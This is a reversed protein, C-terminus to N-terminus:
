MAVRAIGGAHVVLRGQADLLHLEGVLGHLAQRVQSRAAVEGNERHGQSGEDARQGSREGTRQARFGDDRRDPRQRRNASELNTRELLQGLLEGEFASPGVVCEFPEYESLTFVM